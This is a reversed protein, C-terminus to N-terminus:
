NNDEVEKSGRQYQFNNETDGALIKMAEDIFLECLDDKFECEIDASPIVNEYPDKCGNIQIKIPQRYYVLNLTKIEFEKFHYIQLKNGKIVGFTEGWSYDPRRNKDGLYEDVNAEEALYVKIRKPDPCCEKTVACNIRSFQLYDAPWASINTEFYDGKDTVAFNPTDKLIKQLDDIRRISQEAGEKYLNTGHTNRRIWSVMGKNFAEVIQWCQINSYDNSSLKNLRERIKLQITTNNM